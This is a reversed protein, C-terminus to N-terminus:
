HRWMDVAAISDLVGDLGPFGVKAGTEGGAVWFEGKSLPIDQHGLRLYGQVKQAGGMSVWIERGIIAKVAGEVVEACWYGWGAGM